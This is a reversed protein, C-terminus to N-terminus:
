GQNSLTAQVLALGAKASALDMSKYAVGTRPKFFAPFNSRQQKASTDTFSYSARARQSASLTKLWAKTAPVVKARYAKAAPSTATVGTVSASGATKTDAGSLDTWALTAAVIGVVLAATLASRRQMMPSGQIKSPKVKKLLCRVM